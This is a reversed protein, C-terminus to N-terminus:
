VDIARQKKHEVIGTGYVNNLKLKLTRVNSINYGTLVNHLGLLPQLCKGNISKYITGSNELASFTYV